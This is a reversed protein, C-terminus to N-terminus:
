QEERGWAGGGLPWAVAIRWFGRFLDAAIRVKLKGKERSYWRGGKAGKVEHFDARGGPLVVLFDPVFWVGDALRLRVAEHKYDLILGARKETELHAAYAAETKSRYRPRRPDGDIPKVPGARDATPAPAQSAAVRVPKPKPCCLRAAGGPGVDQETGCSQCRLRM